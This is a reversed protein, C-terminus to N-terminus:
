SSHGEKLTLALFHEVYGELVAGTTSGEIVLNSEKGMGEDFTMSAILTLNKGRNRPLVKQLLLGARRQARLRRVPARASHQLGDGRRVGVAGPMGLAM